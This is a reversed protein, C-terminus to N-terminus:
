LVGVPCELIITTVRKETMAHPSHHECVLHLGRPMGLNQRFDGTGSLKEGLM